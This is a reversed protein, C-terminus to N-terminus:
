HPLELLYGYDRSRSFIDFPDCKKKVQFKENKCGYFTGVYQIPMNEYHNTSM